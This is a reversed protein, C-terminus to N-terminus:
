GRTDRDTLLGSACASRLESSDLKEDHNIDVDKVVQKIPDLEDANLEGDTNRDLGRHKAVCRQIEAQLRGGGSLPQPDPRQSFPPPGSFRDGAARSDTSFPATAPSGDTPPMPDLPPRAGTPPVARTLPSRDRFPLADASPSAGTSPAPTSPTARTSPSARTSPPAATSAGGGGSTGSSTSQAAAPVAALGVALVLATAPLLRQM